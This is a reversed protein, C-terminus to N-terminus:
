LIILKSTELVVGNEDLLQILYLGSVKINTRVNPSELQEDYYIRGFQDLIQLHAANTPLDAITINNGRVVPNPYVKVSKNPLQGFKVEEDDWNDHFLTIGLISQAKISAGLAEEYPVKFVISDLLQLDESTLYFQMSDTVASGDAHMNILAATNIQYVTQYWQEVSNVPNINALISNVSDFQDLDLLSDLQQIQEISTLSLLSEILSDPPCSAGSACSWLLEYVDLPIQTGNGLQLISDLYVIENTDYDGDIEGLRPTPDCPVGTNSVVPLPCLSPAIISTIDYPASNRYLWNTVAFLSTFGTASMQHSGGIWLNDSPITTSGDQGNMYFTGLINEGYQGGMVDDMVFASFCDNFENCRANSATSNDLVYLGAGCQIIVNERVLTTESSSQLIGRIEKNFASGSTCAGTCNGTITNGSVLFEDSNVSLIGVATNLGTAYEFDIVNDNITGATGGLVINQFTIGRNVQSIENGRIDLENIHDDAKIGQTNGFEGTIVNFRIKLTGSTLDTEIGLDTFDSITNNNIFTIDKTGSVFVAKQMVLPTGSGFFSNDNINAVDFNIARVGVRCDDFTNAFSAGAGINAIASTSPQCLAEVGVGSYTPNLYTITDFDCNRVTITSNNSYIGTALNQFLNRTSGGDVILGDYSTNGILGAYIGVECPLGEITTPGFIKSGQFIGPHDAADYNLVQIGIRNRRLESNTVEFDAPTSFFDSNAFIAVDAGCIISNTRVTVKADPQVVIGEWTNDPAILTNSEIILENGATVVITLGSAAEIDCDRWTTNDDITFTPGTILFHQGIITAPM